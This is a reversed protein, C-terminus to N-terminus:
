GWLKAYLQNRAARVNSVQGNGSTKSYASDIESFAAHAKANSEFGFRTAITSYHADDTGDGELMQIMADRIADLLEDGEEMTRLMQRLRRGYQTSQDNFYIHNSM